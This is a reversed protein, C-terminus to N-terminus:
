AKDLGRENELLARKREIGWRYGSLGGDSRVVRHCPIAVALANAACAGAVARVASPSGIREALQAYSLTQGPPVKQLALWVRQQFATGRIDLPLGLDRTPSDVFGAVLAVHQMFADDGPLLRAKDFRRQLDQLLADPDDGLLIACIGKNSQAVLVPGLSCEGVAFQIDTNAGAARYTGPTMGLVQTSETYFRGSSGYGADNFADTISGDQDLAERLRQARRAKGYQHPTLGTLQKFLRHLHYPSLGAHTALQALTPLQSATDILHCLEAIKRRQEDQASNQDPRCRKCPRFGAQSAQAPGAYFSVNEPRASRSPCSPRCYVGTTRVGYVFEGDADADRRVVASWRPDARTEQPSQEPAGQAKYKRPPRANM